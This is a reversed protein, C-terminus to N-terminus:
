PAVTVIASMKGAGDVRVPVVARIEKFYCLGSNGVSCYNLSLEVTITAQGSKATIPISLNHAAKTLNVAGVGVAEPNDSVATVAFPAEPNFKTGKPLEVTIDVTGPGSTIAQEAVKIEKGKFQPNTKRTLRDLNTLKLTSLSQTAPDYVRLMHNNTDAIFLKGSVWVLGAPENLGAKKAPGDALGRAGTGAVTELKKTKPDVRKIKHNYTDAVYIWGDAPNYAVGLPHQLRATPYAGDIDGFEFLGQGILTDVSASTPGIQRIASVESDAVFLHNGDTALGSPQAFNASKLPGDVINERATGAYPYAGLTTLNLKWIQHTGAMAIYLTDGQLLVDWPSSLAANQGVGGKPPYDMAQKGTGALTSVAKTKLDVKRIEHNETDAVYLAERAADYCVGQPRFFKATSFSGDDKGPTGEGIVDQIAGSTTAIVIRNHNSDSFFLRGGKADVALKGPYSLVSKPKDDKELVLKIPKRNIKKDADFKPILQTLAQNVPDFVGEGGKMGIVKGDPDILAITPWSSTGWTNWVTMQSDNVVPHEIEYRLIAERINSSERENKFKASHVGIVVLEKPYKAELKKLDPIIHMCNICCYTWFDILVFKGRLERLSLPRDTNLWEVGSPFEPAEPHAQDGQQFGSNLYSAGLGAAESMLPATLLLAGALLAAPLFIRNTRSNRVRM